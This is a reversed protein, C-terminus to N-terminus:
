LGKARDGLMSRLFALIQDQQEPTLSDFLRNIEAKKDDVDDEGFILYDADVGLASAIKKIGELTTGREGHEIKSISARSVLGCANALKEQSWNKVMRAERVRAGIEKKVTDLEM